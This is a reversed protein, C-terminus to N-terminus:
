IEGFEKAYKVLGKVNSLSGDILEKAMFVDAPVNFPPRINWKSTPVFGFRPYYETHGLVIVSQYGLERAKDLGYRVLQEGIGKGQMDPSVAMPALALSDHSRDEDIISIKTFLIHGVIKDEVTAVLSLEPIFGDGLRLRDALRAEEKRNFAKLNIEYVAPFDCAEEQRIEINMSKNEM